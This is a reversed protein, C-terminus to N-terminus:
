DTYLEGFVKKALDQMYKLSFSSDSYIIENERALTQTYDSLKYVTCGGPGSKVHAVIPIIGYDTIKVDDGMDTITVDALVGLMRNAIGAGTQATANIYNGISYYVLMEHQGDTIMEVPQVVHPHTGIVLDVGCEFFLETWYKQNSDAYLVYETGWHPAVIVFDAKQKAEAIDAKIDNVRSSTLLNVCYPMDSPLPIGNTGYTYNLIAIKIGEKETVYIEDAKSQTDAIGLYPIHPYNEEWFSICSLLGKKGKDLAHNTAHLVVDFGSAVLSDGVEFAGNFSPYGTLGLERGGLIVEQNVLALDAREIEDKVNAFMHDYNYTGDDMKGSAAVKDHLLVDGAMLISVVGDNTEDIVPETDSETVPETSQHTTIIDTSDEHEKKGDDGIKRCGTFLLLVALIVAIRKM